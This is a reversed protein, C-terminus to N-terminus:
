HKNKMITRRVGGNGGVGRKRLAATTYATPDKVKGRNVEPLESRRSITRHLYSQWAKETLAGATRLRDVAVLNHRLAAAELTHVPINSVVDDLLSKLKHDQGSPTRPIVKALAKLLRVVLDSDM